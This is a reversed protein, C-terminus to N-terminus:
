SYWDLTGLLDKLAIFCPSFNTPLSQPFDFKCVLPILNISFCHKHKNLSFFYHLYNKTLWLLLYKMSVPLRISMLISAMSSMPFLIDVHTVAKCTHKNHYM